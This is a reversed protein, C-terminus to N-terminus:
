SKRVAAMKSKEIRLIFGLFHSPLEKLGTYFALWNGIFHFLIFLCYYM